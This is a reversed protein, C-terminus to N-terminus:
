YLIRVYRDVHGCPQGYFKISKSFSVCNFSDLSIEERRDGLMQFIFIKKKQWKKWKFLTSPNKMLAVLFFFIDSKGRLHVHLPIKILHFYWNVGPGQHNKLMGPELVLISSHRNRALRSISLTKPVRTTKHIPKEVLSLCIETMKRWSAELSQDCNLSGKNSDLDKSMYM